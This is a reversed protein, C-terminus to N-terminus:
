NTSTMLACRPAEGVSGICCLYVSDRFVMEKMDYGRLQFAVNDAPMCGVDEPNVRHTEILRVDRYGQSELYKVAAINSVTHSEGYSLVTKGIFFYVVLTIVCGVFGLIFVVIMLEVLTFGKQMKIKRATSNM